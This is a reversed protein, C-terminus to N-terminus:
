AEPQTALVSAAWQELQVAQGNLASVDGSLRDLSCRYRQLGQGVGGVTSQLTALAARWAAVAARQEALAAELGLLARSLRAAGESTEPDPRRPPFPIVEAAM